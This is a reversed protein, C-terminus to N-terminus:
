PSCTLHDPAPWLSQMPRRTLCVSSIKALLKAAHLNHRMGLGMADRRGTSMMQQDCDSGHGVEFLPQCLLHSAQHELWAGDM